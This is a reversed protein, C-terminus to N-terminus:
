VRMCLISTNAKATANQEKENYRARTQHQTAHLALRRGAVGGAPPEIDARGALRGARSSDDAIIDVARLM